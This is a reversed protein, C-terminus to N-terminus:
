AATPQESPRSRNAIRVALDTALWGLLVFPVLPLNLPGMVLVLVDAAIFALVGPAAGVAFSLGRRRSHEVISAILLLDLIGVATGFWPTDIVLMGYFYWAPPAGGTEGSGSGLVVIQITDLVALVALLAFMPMSRPPLGRGVLVGGALAVGLVPLSTWPYLVLGLVAGTGLLAASAGLVVARPRPGVRDLLRAGAAVALAVLISV